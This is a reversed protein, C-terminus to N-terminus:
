GHPAQGNTFTLAMRQTLRVVGWCLIHNLENVLNLLYRSPIGSMAGNAAAYKHVGTIMGAIWPYM